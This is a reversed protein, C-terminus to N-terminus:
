WPLPKSITPPNIQENIQNNVRNQIDSISGSGLVDFVWQMVDIETLNEYPIFASGTDYQVGVSGFINGYYTSGSYDRYGNCNYNVNFVVDTEGEYTPYCDMSQIKWSYNTSM